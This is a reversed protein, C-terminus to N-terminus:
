NLALWWAGCVLAGALVAAAHNLSPNIDEGRQRRLGAFLGLGIGAIFGFLHAGIDTNAGGTGLLALLGCAAAVPIPWRRHLSHRYHLMNIAALLGVAGFVATSAGISRHDPSQVLANLYNGLLGSTLAALWAYGSGLIWCLRIMFLSGVALNGFLHLPGSHLTLATILRWWEGALIKESHANGLAAWDLPTSGLPNYHQSALNHFLALLILVWISSATNDYRKRAPPPPPPWDRNEREYALLERCADRYASAPVLLQWHRAVKEARSPIDRSELVLQWRKLQRKSIHPHAPGPELEAPLALWQPHDIEM